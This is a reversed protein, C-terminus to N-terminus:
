SAGPRDSGARAQPRQDPGGPRDPVGHPRGPGADAVAGLVRDDYQIRMGAGEAELVLAALDGFTPQPRERLGGTEDDRLVGLVQRLDTLAEHSKAQILAATEHMEEATLDTRYALAGAHMAILSIRHALVDHM